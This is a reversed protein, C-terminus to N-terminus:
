VFTASGVQDKEKSFRMLIVGKATRSLRPIASVNIKVVQGQRSTILLTPKDPTVFGSFCIPGNKDDITALRVGKGGRGQVPFLSINSVKGIGNESLVMLNRKKDTKEFVNMSTVKDAVDLKIGRVGAANRGMSRVDDEPFVIAQGLRTAINVNMSGNTLKTWQLSDGKELGIAIIGNTRINNFQNLRTKKVTGLTTCMFINWGSEKEIMEPSTTLVSTVNEDGALNLLNVIAKGKSVRTAEPIEWVRTQYIKGKDTFFMVYDHTQASTIYGVEDEEKTAMGSVGKGGRKQVKFTERPVTKIYGETTLTVIVEKNEILQEDSIEGPRHKFVKTLRADGFNERIELLERKIEAFINFVNKIIAELKNIKKTLEKLEEEIKSRELGTLRKLQMDLIAQSQIDTFDFKSILRAKAEPESPSKKIVEIIEDIHDLAKLLGELIHARRKASRLEFLSRRKIILVRHKVYEELITQLSVIQPANGILAVMNVPYTTQLETFKFLNNLVKKGSADRKLEVVVRVGDRDSEDRLDSIGVLKKDRVLNAIKMVLNAKNTQYPLETIIIAEKGKGIDEIEAKARMLISGRGTGYAQVIENQGYISAATPFDPGKIHQMLGELTITLGVKQSFETIEERMKGEYDFKLEDELPPTYTIVPSMTQEGDEKKSKKIEHANDILYFIADIVETLNHPPIRTAMGVAIGEAGMLLLNPIKAPLFVPEKLTADFNDQWNVTERDIDFLMEEAIKTLKVETYRMAAPRDGDISGFNGQGLVLPYRMSFTQAMRVLSDYVPVDGHPHYKGLVEGVIKASKSFRASHTLGLRHMAYLVRRHVPKLGDRVDPLARSVIVSMAYNLYARKMETSIESRIVTGTKNTDMNKETIRVLSSM